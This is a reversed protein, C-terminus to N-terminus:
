AAYREKGAVGLVCGSTNAREQAFAQPRRENRRNNEHLAKLPVGSSVGRRVLKELGAVDYLLDGFRECSSGSLETAECLGPRSDVREDDGDGFRIARRDGGIRVIELCEGSV